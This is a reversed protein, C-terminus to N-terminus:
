CVFEIEDCSLFGGIQNEDIMQCTTQSTQITIIKLVQFTHIMGNEFSFLLPWNDDKIREKNIIM